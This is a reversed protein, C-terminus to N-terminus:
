EEELVEVYIYCQMKVENTDETSWIVLSVTEGNSVDFVRNAYGITSQTSYRNEYSTQTEWQVENKWGLASYFGIDKPTDWDYRINYSVKVKKINEAFHILGNSITIDDTNSDIKDFHVNQFNSNGYAVTPYGNGSWYKPKLLNFNNNLNEANLPTSTDPLNKFEILGM